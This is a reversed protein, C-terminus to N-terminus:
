NWHVMVHYKAITITSSLISLSSCIHRRRLGNQHGHLRTSAIFTANGLAAHGPSSQFGGPAPMPRSSAGYQGLPRWPLLCVFLLWCICTCLHGNQNSHCHARYTVAHMVRHLLDLAESSAVPHQWRALIIGSLMTRVHSHRKKKINEDDFGYSFTM